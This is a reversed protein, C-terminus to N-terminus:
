MATPPKFGIEHLIEIVKKFPEAMVEEDWYEEPVGLVARVKGDDEYLLLHCPAVVGITKNRQYLDYFVKANCLGLTKYKPMEIGLKNRVVETFNQEWVVGFGAKPMAEKVKAEAEEFNGEFVFKEEIM